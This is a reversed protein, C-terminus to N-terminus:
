VYQCVRERWSARGIEGAPGRGGVFQHRGGGGGGQLGLGRADGFAQLEREEEAQAVGSVPRGSGCNGVLMPSLFAYQKPASRFLTTYPVLTDTRTSRPPRRIMLFFYVDSAQAGIGIRWTQLVDDRTYNVRLADASYTHLM